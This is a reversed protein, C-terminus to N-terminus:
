KPQDFIFGPMLEDWKEMLEYSVIDLQSTNKSGRPGLEM